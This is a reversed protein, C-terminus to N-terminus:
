DVLAVVDDAMPGTGYANTDHPKDSSGHGRFDVGIVQLGRDNLCEIWGAAAYNREFSVTGGHLMVVPRGTGHIEYHLSLGGNAFHAM